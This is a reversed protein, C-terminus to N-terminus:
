ENYDLLLIKPYDEGLRLVKSYFLLKQLWAMLLKGYYLRSHSNWPKSEYPLDQMLLRM